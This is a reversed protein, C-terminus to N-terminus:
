RGKKNMPLWVRILSLLKDVDVPKTIYDNAGAALCKLQDDKMAKATVMIVPLNKFKPNQRLRQTAELGDMEPMMVDMLVLDIDSVDQLKRLAEIGNRGIEVHSGQQELVSTLSFINRADDDVLLIKRGELSKERTRLDKLMKQKEPPLDSEVRHLFLTVESLLREPSKAGKIIISESYNMLKDEEEKSLDRGTYVIVPPFSYSSEHHALKELLQYGSMDPLSLDMIMCDFTEASLKELADASTGVATIKNAVDGLLLSLGKRQVPDDEVILVSRVRKMMRGQLETISRMVEERKVPKMAYTAAGMKLAERAYDESSIVHVPIHRTMSDNKLEDLIALGHHDPLRVDLMVATPMYKRILELGEKGNSAVLAKFDMEHALEFLIKAFAEDDEVIVIKRQDNKTIDRDDKFSFAPMAQSLDKQSKTKNEYESYTPVFIETRATVKGTWEIPLIVRFTSGQGEVSEVSIEGGLVRSLEKSISLGLGTGGHKRNTSGDAQRFAEFIISQQDKPIGPGSDVVDFSIKDTGMKKIKLVVSGKDTFKIANALFNKLIQELRQKDTVMQAPTSSDVEIKFDLHKDRAQPIFISKLSEVVSHLAITNPHMELKGAEVKSLDLIDNILTLLDNGASMITEAYQIQDENLNGPRNDALLKALILSSNLPTRLEHSMNALFESKYKGSRELEMAKLQLDEKQNELMQSQEELQQNIQELEAQQNELKAQSEMLTARQQELEENTVRLEEQQVQLQEAQAQTEELLRTLREKYRASRIAIGLGETISELFDLSAQSVPKMFGLELMGNVQGEAFIPVLVIQKPKMEGLSTQVKIFDAPIEDLVVIKRDKIVQGILGEYISLSENTNGSVGYGARRKLFQNNKSDDEKYLAGVTAQTFEAIFHLSREAVETTSLEGRISLSLNMLGNRIWGEEHVKNRGRILKSVVFSMVWVVTFGYIRNTLAIKYLIGEPSLLFGAFSFVSCMLAVYIPVRPNSHLASLAVPLFFFIFDAYGMPTFYDLVLISLALIIIFPLLWSREKEM